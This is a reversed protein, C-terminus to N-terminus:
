KGWKDRRVITAMIGYNSVDLYADEVTEGEVANKRGSMLLNKLRQIKDNMRFWLGTLSLHVEDETQLQTGVSINGPGYDHQKHLFLEYQERQLRRFEATMLPWEQEMLTVIDGHDGTLYSNVEKKTSAEKIVRSM